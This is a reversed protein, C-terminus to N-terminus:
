LNALRDAENLIALNVIAVQQLVDELAQQVRHLDRQFRARIRNLEVRDLHRQQRLNALIRRDRHHTARTERQIYAPDSMRDQKFRILESNYQINNEVASIATNNTDRIVQAVEGLNTIRDQLHNAEQELEAGTYTAILGRYENIDFFNAMKSQAITFPHLLHHLSVVYQKILHTYPYATNSRGKAGWEDGENMYGGVGM